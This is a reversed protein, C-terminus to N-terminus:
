QTRLYYDASECVVISDASGDISGRAEIADGVALADLDAINEQAACLNIGMSPVLVTRAEGADTELMIRYPGDVAIESFDLETIEGSYTVAETATATSTATPENDEIPLAEDDNGTWVLAGVIIGLLIIIFIYSTKKM